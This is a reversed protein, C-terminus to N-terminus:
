QAAAQELAPRPADADTDGDACLQPPQWEPPRFLVGLLVVPRPANGLVARLEGALEAWYHFAIRLPNYSNINHVLGYRLPEREPEFSGFLRDWIVLIGGYNRDIYQPNSGHHVRHHSPTNFLWELPGLRGVLETHLFFQYILSVSQVTVILLPHFGLLVLPVFFLFSYLPTTWSQRLATTFNFQESSHHNVHAAWLLRVRHSARHYWYFCFDEGVVALAWVWAAGPDLDFLRHRYLVFFLAVWGAKTLLSILVNGVGMALSAFADRGDYRGPHKWRIYAAEAAVMLLFLPIAYLVLRDNGIEHM